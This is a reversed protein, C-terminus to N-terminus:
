NKGFSNEITTGSCYTQFLIIFILGSVQCTLGPCNETLEDSDVLKQYLWLKNSVTYPDLPRMARSLFYDSNRVGKSHVALAIILYPVSYTM